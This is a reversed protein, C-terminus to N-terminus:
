FSHVLGAAYSSRKVNANVDVAKVKDQGAAVYVYTRKSLDYTTGVQFGSSKAFKGDEDKHNGSAIAVYPTLAGMPFRAGFEMANAKITDDSASVQSRPDCKSWWGILGLFGAFATAAGAAATIRQAWTPPSILPHTVAPM